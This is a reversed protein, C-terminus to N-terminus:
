TYFIFDQETLLAENLSELVLKYFRVAQISIRLIGSKM